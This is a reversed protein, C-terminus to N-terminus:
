ENVIISWNKDGDSIFGPINMEWKQQIDKNYNLYLKNNVITWVEPDGPAKDSKEAVAWACHGGYQPAYKEPNAKFADLHQQSSFFWDASKYVTSFTANGMIPQDSEFYSVADYGGLAKNSFFSTYIEDSAHSVGSFILIFLLIIRNM